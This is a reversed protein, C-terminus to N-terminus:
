QLDQEIYRAGLGARSVVQGDLPDGQPVGLVGVEVWVAKGTTTVTLILNSLWGGGGGGGGGGGDTELQSCRGKM